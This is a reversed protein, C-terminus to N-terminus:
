KEEQFENLEDNLALGLDEESFHKQHPWDSSVLVLWHISMQPPFNMILVHRPEGWLITLIFM